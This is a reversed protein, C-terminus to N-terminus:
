LNENLKKIYNMMRLYQGEKMDGKMDYMLDMMESLIDNVKCVEGDNYEEEDSSYDMGCPCQANGDWERGCRECTYFDEQDYYCNLCRWVEPWEGESARFEEQGNDTALDESLCCDICKKGNKKCSLCLLRGDHEEKLCDVHQGDHAFIRHSIINEPCNCEVCRLGEM